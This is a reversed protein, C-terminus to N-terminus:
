FYFVPLSVCTNIPREQAPKKKSIQPKKRTEAEKLDGIIHSWMQIKSTAISSAGLWSGSYSVKGWRTFTRWGSQWMGDLMWALTCLRILKRSLIRNTVIKIFKPTKGRLTASNPLRPLSMLFLSCWKYLNFSMKHLRCCTFTDLISLKRLRICKSVILHLKWVYQAFSCFKAAEFASFFDLDLLDFFFKTLIQHKMKSNSAHRICFGYASM